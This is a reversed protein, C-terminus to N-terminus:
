NDVKIVTKGTIKTFYWTRGILAGTKKEPPITTCWNEEVVFIHYFVGDRIPFNLPWGCFFLLWMSRM